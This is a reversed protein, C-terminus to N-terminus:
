HLVKGRSGSLAASQSALERTVLQVRNRVDLEELVKQKAEIDIILHHACADAVAGPALNPQLHFAFGPDRRKVEGAFSTAASALASLDSPSVSVDVDELLTARARRYPAQFPLEELAVRAQGRLLINSRGGALPQHEIVIGAGAIHAIETRHLDRLLVLAMAGHMEMCDALMRQYRPEFVHLPVM